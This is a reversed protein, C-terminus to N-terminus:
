EPHEALYEKTEFYARKAQAAQAWYYVAFPIIFVPWKGRLRRLSNPVVKTWVNAYAKQEHPSLAYTVIGSGKTNTILGFKRGM